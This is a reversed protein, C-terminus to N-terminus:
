QPTFLPLSTSLSVAAPMEMRLIDPTSLVGAISPAGTDSEQLTYIKKIYALDGLADSAANNVSGVNGNMPSAIIPVMSGHAASAAAPGGNVANIQGQMPQVIITNMNTKATTAAANGGNVTNVNGTMPKAIINSM